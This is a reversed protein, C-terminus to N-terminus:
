LYLVHLGKGANDIYPKTEPYENELAALQQALPINSVDADINRLTHSNLNMYCLMLFLFLPRKPGDMIERFGLFTKFVYNGKDSCYGVFLSARTIALGAVDSKDECYEIFDTLDPRNLRQYFGQESPHFAIMDVMVDPNKDPEKGDYPCHRERMRRLAHSYLKVYYPPGFRLGRLYYVDKKGNELEVICHQRHAWSFKKQPNCSITLHWKNGNKSRFYESLIKGEKVGTKKMKDLEKLAIKKAKREVSQYDDLLERLIDDETSSSIIM